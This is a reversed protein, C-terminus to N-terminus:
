DRKECTSLWDWLDVVDRSVRPTWPTKETYQQLLEFDEQSVTLTSDPNLQRTELGNMHSISELADLLRAEKRIVVPTRDGKGDGGAMVAALLLQFRQEAREGDFSLERKM